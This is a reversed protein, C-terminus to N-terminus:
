PLWRVYSFNSGYMAEPTRWGNFGSAHVQVQDSRYPDYPIVLEFPFASPTVQDLIFIERPPLAAWTDFYHASAWITLTQANILTAHVLDEPLAPYWQLTRNTPPIQAYDRERSTCSTIQVGIDLFSEPDYPGLYWQDVADFVIGSRHQPDYAPAYDDPRFPPRLILSEPPVKRSGCPDKLPM